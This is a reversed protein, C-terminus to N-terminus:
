HVYVEQDIVQEDVALPHVDNLSELDCSEGDVEQVAMQELEIMHTSQRERPLQM